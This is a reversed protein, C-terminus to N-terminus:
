ARPRTSRLLRGDLILLASTIIAAGVWERTSMREGLFLAGLAIPTLPMIIPALLANMVGARRLVTFHCLSSLGSGLTGMALVALISTGSPMPGRWPQDILLAAPWAVVAAGAMQGFAIVFPHYSGFTRRVYINSMAYFAAAVIICLQSTLSPGATAVGGGLGPLGVLVAVGALGVLAGAIRRGSAKEDTTLVHALAIGFLPATANFVAAMGGPVERQGYVILVFPIFNNFVGFAIFRGWEPWTAPLRLGMAAMVIGVIIMAPFLRLATITLPPMDQGAISIFFFASGWLMSQVVILGWEVPGLRLTQPPSAPPM